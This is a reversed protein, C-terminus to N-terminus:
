RTQSDYDVIRINQAPAELSPKQRLVPAYLAQAIDGLRLTMTLLESSTKHLYVGVALSPIQLVGLVVDCLAQAIGGLRLTM